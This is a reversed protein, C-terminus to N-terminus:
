GPVIGVAWSDHQIGVGGYEIDSFVRLLYVGDIIRSDLATQHSRQRGGKDTM